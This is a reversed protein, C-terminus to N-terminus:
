GLIDDVTLPVDPFAEITLPEGHGAVRRETYRGARPARLIEVQGTKLAILWVERIDAAAYIPLKARQDRAESSDMVEVVLLVDPPEPHARTYYDSRPRLLTVDPEPESNRAALVIPGQVRVIAREGLRSTFVATLRDTTGGHAPNITMKEVIEGDLLEVRDDGTLIGAEAMRHYEDVTFRRRKLAVAM